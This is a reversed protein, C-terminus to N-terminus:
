LQRIFTDLFFTSTRDIQWANSKAFLAVSIATDIKQDLRDVSRDVKQDLQTLAELVLDIRGDLPEATVDFRPRIEGAAREFSFDLRFPARLKM